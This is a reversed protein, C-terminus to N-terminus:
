VLCTPPLPIVEDTPRWLHLTGSHCNIYASKPPHFQMVCEEAKWYTADSGMRGGRIRCKELDESIERM